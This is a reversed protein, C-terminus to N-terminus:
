QTEMGGDPDEPAAETMGEDAARELEYRQLREAEARRLADESDDADAESDDADPGPGPDRELDALDDTAPEPPPRGETM